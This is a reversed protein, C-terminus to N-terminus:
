KKTLSNPKNGKQSTIEKITNELTYTIAEIPVGSEYATVIMNSLSVLNANIQDLQEQKKGTMIDNFDIFEEEKEVSVKNCFFVTGQGILIGIEFGIENLRIKYFNGFECQTPYIHNQRAYKDIGEYFLCLKEVNEKDSDKILEPFYLWDDNSFGEKDQTFKCLWELYNTNSMIVKINESKVNEKEIYEAVWKSIKAKGEPTEIEKSIKEALSM